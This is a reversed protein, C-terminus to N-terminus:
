SPSPDEVRRISQGGRAALLTINVHVNKLQYMARVSELHRARKRVGMGPPGISRRDKRLLAAAPAAAM